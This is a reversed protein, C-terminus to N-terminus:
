CIWIPRYVIIYIDNGENNTFCIIVVELSRRTYKNAAAISTFYYKMTTTLTVNISVRQQLYHLIVRIVAICKTSYSNKVQKLAINGM